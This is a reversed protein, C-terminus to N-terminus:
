IVLFSNKEFASLAAAARLCIVWVIVDRSQDASALLLGKVSCTWCKSTMELYEASFFVAKKQQKLPSM